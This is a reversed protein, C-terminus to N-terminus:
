AYRLEVFFILVNMCVIFSELIREAMASVMKRLFRSGVLEICMVHKTDVNSYLSHSKSRLSSKLTELESNFADNSGEKRVVGNEKRFNNFEERAHFIDGYIEDVDGSVPRQGPLFTSYNSDNLDVVYARARYLVCTADPPSQYSLSSFKLEKGEM